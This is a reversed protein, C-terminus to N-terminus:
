AAKAFVLEEPENGAMPLRATSRQVAAARRSPFAIRSVLVVLGLALYTVIVGIPQIVFTAGLALRLWLPNFGFDEGLANCIGLLNDKPAALPTSNTTM